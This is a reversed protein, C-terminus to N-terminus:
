GGWNELNYPLWRDFGSMYIDRVIANWDAEEILRLSLLCHAARPENAVLAVNDLHCWLDDVSQSFTGISPRTLKSM